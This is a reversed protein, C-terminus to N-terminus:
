HSFCVDQLLVPERIWGFPLVAPGLLDLDGAFVGINTDLEAVQSILELLIVGVHDKTHQILHHRHDM